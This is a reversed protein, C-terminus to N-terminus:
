TIMLYKLYDLTPKKIYFKARDWSDALKVDIRKRIAEMTKGCMANNMLKFFNIEFDNTAKKRMETNFGIYTQLWNSQKFSIAETIKFEFQSEFRSEFRSESDFRLNEADGLQHYLM